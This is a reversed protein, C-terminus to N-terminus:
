KKKHHDAEKTEKKDMISIIEEISFPRYDGILRKSVDIGVDMSKGYDPITGHSHGFLHISGKHSNLWIRHAFHSMFFTHKGHNVTLVDQVSTFVDQAMARRHTEDSTLSINLEQIDRSYEGNSYKIQEFDTNWFCNPLEKNDIIHQDHNGLIFHITKVRLQKRFNWINELGGFSWDGLFYLIDDEKMTQNWLKVIHKSMEKEDEFDRYGSKWSSVKPGAINKHFFHSDASFWINSKTSNNINKEEEKKM